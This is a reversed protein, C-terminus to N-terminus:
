PRKEYRFLVHNPHKKHTWPRAQYGRKGNSHAGRPLFSWNTSSISVFLLKRRCGFAFFLPDKPSLSQLTWMEGFFTPDEPSLLSLQCFYPTMPAKCGHWRWLPLDGRCFWIKNKSQQLAQCRQQSINWQLDVTEWTCTEIVNYLCISILVFKVIKQVSTVNLEWVMSRHLTIDTLKHVNVPKYAEVNTCNLFTYAKFMIQWEYMSLYM